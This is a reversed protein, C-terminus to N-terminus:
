LVMVNAALGPGGAAGPGWRGTSLMLQQETAKSPSNAAAAAAALQQKLRLLHLLDNMMGLQAQGHSSREEAHRQQERLKSLSAEAETLQAQCRYPCAVTLLLLLCQRQVFLWSAPTIISPSPNPNSKRRTWSSHEDYLKM